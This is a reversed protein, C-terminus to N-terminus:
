KNYMKRKLTLKTILIIIVILSIACYSLVIIKFLSSNLFNSSKESNVDAADDKTTPKEEIVNSSENSSTTSPKITVTTNEFYNLEEIKTLTYDSNTIHGSGIPVAANITLKGDGIFVIPENAVIGVGKDVNIKNDGILKIAFVNGSGTGHCDIKLQGGNYNNLTLVGGTYNSDVDWSATGSNNSTGRIVREGDIEWIYADAANVRTISFFSIFSFVMIAIFISIKFKKKM